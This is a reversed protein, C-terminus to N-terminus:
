LWQTPNAPLPEEYHILLDEKEVDFDRRFCEADFGWGEMARLADQWTSDAVDRGKGVVVVIPIHKEKRIQRAQLCERYLRGILAVALIFSLIRVPLPATFVPTILGLLALVAEWQRRWVDSLAERWIKM